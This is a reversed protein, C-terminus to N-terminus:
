IKRAIIIKTGPNLANDTAFENLEKLYNISLNYNKAIDWIAEGPQVVRFILSPMKSHDVPGVETINSIVSIEDKNKLNLAINIDCSVVISNNGKRYAGCKNINISSDITSSSDDEDLDIAATFPMSGFARDIKNIDSNLYLVNVDLFGDVVYKDDYVKKESIKPTIDVTYIDKITGAVADLINEFKINKNAISKLSSFKIKNSELELQSETSYCDTIVNKEVTDFLKANVTFPLSFEILKKENDYNEAISYTMENQCIKVDKLLNENYNKTELYHTFPFEEAIFATSNFSNNEAYLFGVKCIGEVLMKEDLVDVNTIYVESDAKLISAIEDSAKNLELAEDIKVEESLESVADTYKINKTKAQFSGDSELNSVFSVPHDSIVDSDLMVVAKISFTRDSLQESDIYDIFSNVQVSMDSTANAVHINESFPIKGSTSCVTTEEDNSRYIINYILNGEITIADTKVSANNIKIKGETSIIKEIDPLKDQVSFENELLVETSCSEIIENINFTDSFLKFM